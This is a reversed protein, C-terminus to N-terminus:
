IVKKLKLHHYVKKLNKKAENLLQFRGGTIEKVIISAIDPDVGDDTLFAIADNESIDGIEMIPKECRSFSSRDRLYRPGNGDSSVFVVTLDSKDAHNKAFDQLVELMESDKLALWNINDIVLVPPRNYQQKYRTAAEEIFPKVRRFCGHSSYSRPPSPVFFRNVYGKPTADENFDFNFSDGLLKGFEDVTEPVSVYVIGGVAGNVENCAQILATTKGTGNEGVILHYSKSNAEPTLIYNLQKNIDPRKVFHSIDLNPAIRGYKFAHFVKEKRNHELYSSYGLSSIFLIGSLGIIGIINSWYKRDSKKNHQEQQGQKEQKQEHQQNFPQNNDIQPVIGNSASYRSTFIYSNKNVKYFNHLFKLSKM